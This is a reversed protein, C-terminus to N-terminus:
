EGTRVQEVIFTSDKFFIVVPEDMPVPPFSTYLYGPQPFNDRTVFEKDPEGMINKVQEKTMGVKVKHANNRNIFTECNKFIICGGVIIAFVLLIRKLINKM